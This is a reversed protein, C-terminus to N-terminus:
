EKASVLMIEHKYAILSCTFTHFRWNVIYRNSVPPYLLLLELYNPTIFQININQTENLFAFRFAYSYLRKISSHEWSLMSLRVYKSIFLFLTSYRLSSFDYLNGVSYFTLTLAACTFVCTFQFSVSCTM